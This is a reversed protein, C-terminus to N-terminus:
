WKAVTDNFIKDVIEETMTKILEPEVDNLMRSSDFVQYASYKTEFDEDPNKTNTFRVNVTLTLRTQAAYSDASISMSALQYGVIEGEIQLDGGQKLVRLRTQRTYKDRLAETFTQSLTPTVMEANNPFDAISITKTKTYDVNSGSMKYSIACSSLLILVISFVTIFYTRKM